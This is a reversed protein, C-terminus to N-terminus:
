QACPAEDPVTHGAPAKQGVPVPVTLKVPETEDVVSVTVLAGAPAMATPMIIVPALTVVFENTVAKTEPVPPAPVYVTLSADVAALVAMVDVPVTHGRPVKLAPLAPLAHVAHASPEHRASRLVVAAAFAHV